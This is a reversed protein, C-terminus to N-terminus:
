TGKPGKSRKEFENEISIVRNAYYQCKFNIYNNKEIKLYEFSDLSHIVKDQGEFDKITKKDTTGLSIVSMGDQNFSVFDKSALLL